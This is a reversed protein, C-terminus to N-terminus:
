MSIYVYTFFQERRQQPLLNAEQGKYGHHRSQIELQPWM